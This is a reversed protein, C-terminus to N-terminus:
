KKWGVYLSLEIMDNLDEEIRAARGLYEAINGIEDEFYILDDLIFFNVGGSVVFFCNDIKNFEKKIEEIIKSKQSLKTRYKRLEIRSSNRFLQTVEAYDLGVLSSVTICEIIEKLFRHTKKYDEDAKVYTSCVENLRQYKETSVTIKIIWDPGIKLIKEKIELSIDKTSLFYVMDAEPIRDFDEIKTIEVFKGGKIKNQEYYERLEKNEQLSILYIRASNIESLCDDCVNEKNILYIAENDCRNCKGTVSKM